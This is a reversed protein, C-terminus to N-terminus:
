EVVEDSGPIPRTWRALVDGAGRQNEADARQRWARWFLRVDWRAAARRAVVDGTRTPSM